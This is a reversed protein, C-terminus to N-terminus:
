EDWKLEKVQQNIAQLEKFNIINTEINGTTIQLFETCLADKKYVEILIDKDMKNFEIKKFKIYKTDIRDPVPKAKLYEIFGDGMSYDYGLESFMEKATKSM